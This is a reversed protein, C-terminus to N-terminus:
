KKHSFTISKIERPIAIHKIDLERYIGKVLATEMDKNTVTKKVNVKVEILVTRIEHTPEPPTESIESIEKTIENIMKNIKKRVSLEPYSELMGKLKVLSDEKLKIQAKHFLKETIKM